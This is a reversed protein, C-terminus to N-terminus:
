EDQKTRPSTPPPTPPPQPWLKALAARLPALLGLKDLILLVTYLCMLFAGWMGWDVGSFWSTIYVIVPSAKAGDLLHERIATPTDAM